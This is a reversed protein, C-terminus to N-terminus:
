RKRRRPPQEMVGGARPKPDDTGRVRDDAASLGWAKRLADGRKSESAQQKQEALKAMTEKARDAPRQLRELETEWDGPIYGDIAGAKQLFVTEEGELIELIEYIFDGNDHVSRSFDIMLGAGADPNNYIRQTERGKNINRRIDIHGDGLHYAVHVAKEFIRREAAQVKRDEIQQQIDIDGMSADQQPNEVDIDMKYNDERNEPTDEGPATTDVM